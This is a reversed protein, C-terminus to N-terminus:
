SIKTVDDPIQTVMFLPTANNLLALPSTMQFFSEMTASGEAVPKLTAAHPLRANTTVPFLPEAIQSSLAAFPATTQRFPEMAVLPPIEETETLLLCTHTPSAECTTSSLGRFPATEQLFVATALPCHTVFTTLSPLHSSTPSVFPMASNFLEVPAVTHFFTDMASRDSVITLPRLAGGNNAVLPAFTSTANAGPNSCPPTASTLRVVPLVM